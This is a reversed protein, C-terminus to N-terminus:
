GPLLVEFKQERLAGRLNFSITLIPHRINSMGTVTTMIAPSKM